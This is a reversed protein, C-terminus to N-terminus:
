NHFKENLPAPRQGTSFVITKLPNAWLSSAQAVTVWPNVADQREPWPAL